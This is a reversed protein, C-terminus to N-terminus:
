RYISPICLLRRLQQNRLYRIVKHDEVQPIRKFYGSCFGAWLAVSAIFHPRITARRLCRALMFIPHYGSIYSGLGNKFWNRWFGDALGTVRHQIIKIDRFTVTIWGHMNAKVEDITDWGPAKELPSIQEWCERKYIKTAGRVHFPPDGLSDIALQGNKFSYITGGGIGLKRDYEFREFCNEFYDQGFSLDGDLKVIFDWNAENVCYFGSYFAEIVGGGAKRYGRNPAHIVHIWPYKNSAVDLIHPTQDTSGDDVVVWIQPKVTQSAMSDITKEIHAAEDRVPTIVLYRSRLM